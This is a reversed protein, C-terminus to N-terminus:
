QNDKLCLEDVGCLQFGLIPRCKEACAPYVEGHTRSGSRNERGWYFEALGLPRLGHMAAYHLLKPACCDGTGTPMNGTGQFVEGMLRSEGQFNRLRYLDHIKRMLERSMEKRRRILGRREEGEEIKAIERGLRKIEREVPDVLTHFATVDFVPPVWGPVEWIGNYQCSFAKLIGRMGAADEYVLVGFMQGRAPGWLYDLSLDPDAESKPLHLDIRGERELAQMLERAAELAPSVPLSHTQGCRSCHGSCGSSSSFNM